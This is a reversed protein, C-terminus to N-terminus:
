SQVIYVLITQLLGVIIVCLCERSEMNFVILPQFHGLVWGIHFTGSELLREVRELVSIADTRFKLIVRQLM